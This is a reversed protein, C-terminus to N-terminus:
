GALDDIIKIADDIGSSTLEFSPVSTALALVSDLVEAQDVGPHLMNLVSETSILRTLAEAASIEVLGAQAGLVYNPFIIFDVKPPSNESYVASEDIEVLCKKERMVIIDGRYRGVKLESFLDIGDERLFVSRPFPFASLNLPDILCVEDSLFKYGARTLAFVLTTKGSGSGGPFVLGKQGKAVVGAHIQLLGGLNALVFSLITYYANKVLEYFGQGGRIKYLRGGEPDSSTLSAIAWNDISSNNFGARTFAFLRKRNSLDVILDAEGKKDAIFRAYICDLTDILDKNIAIVEVSIGYFHYNTSFLDESKHSEADRERIIKM